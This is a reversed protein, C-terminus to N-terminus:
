SALAQEKIEIYKDKKRNFYITSDKYIFDLFKKVDNKKNIRMSCITDKHKKGKYFSFLINMRFIDNIINKVGNLLMHTGVFDVIFRNKSVYICGDGDLLGRIFHSQLNEPITNPYTVIFTKNPMCSHKILNNKFCKGYFDLKKIKLLSNKISYIKTNDFGYVLISIKSLVDADDKLLSISSAERKSHVTGDSIMLGLFYAKEETNIDLLWNEDKKYLQKNEQSSRIKISHKKLKRCITTGNVNFEKALKESSEGDSYRKIIEQEINKDVKM